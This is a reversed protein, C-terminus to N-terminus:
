RRKMYEEILAEAKEALTQKSDLVKMVDKNNSFDYLVGSELPSVGDWVVADAFKMYEIKDPIGPSSIVLMMDYGKAIAQEFLARYDASREAITESTIAESNASDLAIAYGSSGVVQLVTGDALLPMSGSDLDGAPNTTNDNCGTIILFVSLAVTQLFRFM